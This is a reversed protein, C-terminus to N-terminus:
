VWCEPLVPLCIETLELGAQDLTTPELVALATVRDRSGGWLFRLSMWHLFAIDAGRYTLWSGPQLSLFVRVCVTLSMPVHSM